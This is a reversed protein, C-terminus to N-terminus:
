LKMLHKAFFDFLDLIIILIKGLLKWFKAKRASPSQEDVEVVRATAVGMDKKQLIYQAIEAAKAREIVNAFEGKYHFIQFTTIYQANVCSLYYQFRSSGPM